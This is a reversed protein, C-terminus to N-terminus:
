GPHLLVHVSKKIHHSWVRAPAVPDRVSLRIRVAMECRQNSAVESESIAIAADGAGDNFEGHGLIRYRRM